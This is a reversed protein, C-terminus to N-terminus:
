FTWFFTFRLMSDQRRGPNTVPDPDNSYRVVELNPSLRVAPNLYWEGGVIWLTFPSQSSLVWYDIAEARPLGTEVEGLKGGVRDARVFLDAKKPRIDWVAFGSWVDVSQDPGGAEGPTRGYWVYHAGVRGRNNRFGAIGQATQRREGAPRTGFSYFGELALGPNREYRSVFRLIKGEGTESGSGSENGFQAAYSLGGLRTPGKFGVGFDRSSDLRYLDVPTKEIHRLGWFGDLWDFTLTPQIGLTLQQQRTYTWQLYADKVYPVLDGGTFDGNSNVELRFRTSLRDSFTYIRRFWLGHQGKIVTPDTGSIEDRHREYYWYYDGFMLGSIKGSPSKSEPEAAAKPFDEGPLGHKFNYLNIALESDFVVTEGNPGYGPREIVRGKEGGQNKMFADYRSWVSFVHIRGDRPVEVYFFTQADVSSAVGAAVMVALATVWRACWSKLSPLTMSAPLRDLLSDCERHLQQAVLVETTSLEPALRPSIAPTRQERPIEPIAYGGSM